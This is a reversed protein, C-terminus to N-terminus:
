IKSVSPVTNAVVVNGKKYNLIMKVLESRADKSIKEINAKKKKITYTAMDIDVSKGDWINYTFDTPSFIDFYIIGDLEAEKLAKEILEKLWKYYSNTLTPYYM